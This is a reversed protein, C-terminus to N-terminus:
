VNKDDEGEMLKDLENGSGWMIYSNAHHFKLIFRSLGTTYDFQLRDIVVTLSEGYRM